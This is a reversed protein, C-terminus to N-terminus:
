LGRKTMQMDGHNGTCFNRFHVNAKGCGDMTGQFSAKCCGEKIKAPVAVLNIKNGVLSGTVKYLGCGSVDTTGTIAQNNQYLNWILGKVDTWVGTACQRNQTNKYIFDKGEPAIWRTVFGSSNSLPEVKSWPLSCQLKGATNVKWTGTYRAMGCNMETIEILGDTTRTRGTAWAVHARTPDLYLGAKGPRFLDRVVRKDLDARARWNKAVGWYPYFGWALRASRAAWWECKGDQYNMSFGNVNNDCCPFPNPADIWNGCGANPCGPCPLVPALGNIICKDGPKPIVAVRNLNFSQSDLDFLHESDDTGADVVLQWTGVNDELWLSLTTSTTFELKNVRLCMEDLFDTISADGFKLLDAFEVTVDVDDLFLKYSDSSKVGEVCFEITNGDQQISTPLEWNGIALNAWIMLVLLVYINKNMM